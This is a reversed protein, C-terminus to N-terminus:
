SDERERVLSYLKDGQERWANYALHFLCNTKHRWFERKPYETAGEHLNCTCVAGCRRAYDEFSEDFGKRTLIKM